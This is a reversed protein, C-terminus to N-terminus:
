AAQVPEGGRATGMHAIFISLALGDCIIRARSTDSASVVGGIAPLRALSADVVSSPPDVSVGSSSPPSALPYWQGHAVGPGLEYAQSHLVPVSSIAVLSDADALGGPYADHMRAGSLALPVQFGDAGKPTSDADVLVESRLTAIIFKDGDSDIELDAFGFNQSDLEAILADMHKGADRTASIHGNRYASKLLQLAEFIEPALRNRLKTGTLSSSSFACEASTSSGQIPLYM